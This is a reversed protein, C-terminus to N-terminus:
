SRIMWNLHFRFRRQWRNELHGRKKLSLALIFNKTAPAPNSGALDPTHVRSPVMGERM